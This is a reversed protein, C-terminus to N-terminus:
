RTQPIQQRSLFSVSRMSVPRLNQGNLTNQTKDTVHIGEHQLFLQGVLTSTGPPTANRVEDKSLAFAEKLSTM